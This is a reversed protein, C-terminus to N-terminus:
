RQSCNEIAQGIVVLLAICGGVLACVNVVFKTWRVEEDYHTVRLPEIDLRFFVAPGTLENTVFSGARFQYGKVETGDRARLTSPTISIYYQFTFAKPSVFGDLPQAMSFDSESTLDVFALHNITHEMNKPSSSERSFFSPWAEEHTGIHFHGPVKNTDFYGHIQCSEGKQEDRLHRDVSNREFIPLFPSGFIPTVDQFWDRYSDRSLDSGSDSSSSAQSIPEAVETCTSLGSMFGFRKSRRSRASRLWCKDVGDQQGWSWWHCGDVRHCIRACTSMNPSQFEDSYSCNGLWCGESVGFASLNALVARRLSYGDTIVNHHVCDPWPKNDVSRHSADNSLGSLFSDKDLDWFRRAALASSNEDVSAKTDEEVNESPASFNEDLPAALRLSGSMSSALGGLHMVRQLYNDPKYDPVRVIQPPQYMEAGWQENHCQEITEVRPLQWRKVRYATLVDSCTNCCQGPPLAGYCPGCTSNSAEQASPNSPGSKDVAKPDNRMDGVATGNKHLRRKFVTSRVDTVKSGMVDQYDLSLENCPFGHVTVNLVVRLKQPRSTLSEGMDIDFRQRSVPTLFVSTESYLMTAVSLAAVAQLLWFGPLPRPEHDLSGSFPKRFLDFELLMRRFTGSSEVDPAMLPARVTHQSSNDRAGLQGWALTTWTSPNRVTRV